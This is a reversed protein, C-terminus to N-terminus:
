DKVFLGCCLIQWICLIVMPRYPTGNPREQRRKCKWGMLKLYKNLELVTLAERNGPSQEYSDRCLHPVLEAFAEFISMTGAYYVNDTSCLCNSEPRTSLTLASAFSACVAFNRKSAKPRVMRILLNQFLLCNCYWWKIFSTLGTSCLRVGQSMFPLHTDLILHSSSSSLLQHFM